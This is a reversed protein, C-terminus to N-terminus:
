LWQSADKSGENSVPIVKGKELILDYDFMELVILNSYLERDVIRMPVARLWHTSMM